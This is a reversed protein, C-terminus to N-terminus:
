KVVEKTKSNNKIIIPKPLSHSIVPKGSKDLRAHISSQFRGQLNLRYSGDPMREEYLGQHSTQLANNEEIQLTRADQLTTADSKEIKPPASIQGTAPDIFVKYGQNSMTKQVKQKETVIQETNSTPQLELEKSLLINSLGILVMIVLLKQKINWV